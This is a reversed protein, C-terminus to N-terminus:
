TTSNIYIAIAIKAFIGMHRTKKCVTVFQVRLSRAFTDYNCLLELHMKEPTINPTPVFSLGKSLLDMESKTLEHTSFNHVTM